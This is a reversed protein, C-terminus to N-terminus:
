HRAALHARLAAGVLFGAFTGTTAVATRPEVITSTDPVRRKLMCPALAQPGAHTLQRSITTQTGNPTTAIVRQGQDHDISHAYKMALWRTRASNFVMMQTNDFVLISTMLMTLECVSSVRYGVAVAVTVATVSADIGM